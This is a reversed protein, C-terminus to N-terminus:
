LKDSIDQETVTKTLMDVVTKFEQKNVGNLQTLEMHADLMMKALDRETSPTDPLVNLGTVFEQPNDIILMIQDFGTNILLDNIDLNTSIVTMRRQFKTFVAGALKAILGLNTSDIFDTERLDLLIDQFASKSIITNVFNNFDTCNTYRAPGIIKIFYKDSNSSYMFQTESEM